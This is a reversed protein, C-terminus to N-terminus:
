CTKELINDVYIVGYKRETSGLYYQEAKQYMRHLVPCLNQDALYSDFDMTDEFGLLYVSYLFDKEREIAELYKNERIYLVWRRHHTQRRPKNKVVYHKDCLHGKRLSLCNLCQKM